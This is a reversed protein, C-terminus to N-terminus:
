LNKIYEDGQSTAMRHAAEAERLIDEIKEYKNDCLLIGIRAPLQIMKEIGAINENLGTQIRNAVRIPIDANPISEMLIYINDQDFSAITDTPRVASKISEAVEHLFSEQLQSDIDKQNNMQNFKLLLIAYLYQDNGKSRKMVSELRYMFFPQNYIGADKFWPNEKIPTTKQSKSSLRIQAVLKTFQEISIPKLLTYDPEVSLSNVMYAHASVVIIKTHDLRSDNRIIELIEVGSVEPLRLDLIILDPQISILRELAVKGHSIVETQYGAMDLVHRFLAAIEREDEIILAFPKDMNM